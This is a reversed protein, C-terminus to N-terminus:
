SVFSFQKQEDEKKGQKIEEIIDYFLFDIFETERKFRVDINMFELTKRMQMYIKRHNMVFNMPIGTKKFYEDLFGPVFDIIHKPDCTIIEYHYRETKQSYLLLISSFEKASENPYYCHSLYITDDLYNLNKEESVFSDNVKKFRYSPELNIMDSYKVEYVFNQTDFFALVMKDEAFNQEIEKMENSILSTLYYIFDILLTLHTSSAYETPYGEKFVRPILNNEKKIGIQHKKLYAIDNHSLDKKSLMSIYTMSVFFYLLSFGDKTTYTDYLYNLDQENFFFQMGFSDYLNENAFYIGARNKRDLLYFFQNSNFKEFCKLSILKRIGKKLESYKEKYNLVRVEKIM